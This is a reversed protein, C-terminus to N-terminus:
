NESLDLAMGFHMMQDGSLYYMEDAPTEKAIKLVSQPVGLSKLASIYENTALDAIYKGLQSNRSAVASGRHFGFRARSSVFLRTGSLAIIVCASECYNVVVVDIQYDSLLEGIKVASDISGGNSKLILTPTSGDDVLGNKLSALTEYGIEGDLIALDRDFFVKEGKASKVGRMIELSSQFNVLRGVAIGGTPVLLILCIIASITQPGRLEGKENSNALIAVAIALLFFVLSLISLVGHAVPVNEALYSFSGAGLSAAGCALLLFISALLFAM